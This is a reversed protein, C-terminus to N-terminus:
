ISYRFENQLLRIRHKTCRMSKNKKMTRGVFNFLMIGLRPTKNRTFLLIEKTKFFLSHLKFPTKIEVKIKKKRERQRERNRNFSDNEAKTGMLFLDKMWHPWKVSQKGFENEIQCWRCRFHILWLVTPFILLFDSFM